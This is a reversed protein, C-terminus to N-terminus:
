SGSKTMGKKKEEVRQSLDGSAMKETAEKLKEIPISIQRSVLYAAIVIPFVFVLLVSLIIYHLNYAVGYGENRDIEAVLGWGLDPLWRWVGLVTIGTYDTYGKGDYGDNGALCQQVGRTLEGTEPDIMKLELACRKKILGMEKLHKSFRSETIMYGDKNVLYTEGTQGLKLDLMLDNLVNVDMRMAVVGVILGGNDKIPASVFMTPVGVEKEGFENILPVESPMIDSVFVKGGKAQRFYNMQSIDSGLEDSNTAVKVMGADDSISIGKSGYERQVTELYNVISPFVAMKSMASEVILPNQSVVRVNKMKEQVWNSVLEAQKHGVGDLNRIQVEMMDTQVKPYAIFRLVVFPILTFLLLLFILRNRISNFM